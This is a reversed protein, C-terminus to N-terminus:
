LVYKWAKKLIIQSILVQSVGFRDALQQQKAEGTSYASRIYQIHHETLKARNTLVGRPQNGRGKREKDLLNDLNTGLWLHDPRVCSPLDCNHCVHLGDSIPGIFVEYSVRHAKRTAGKYQICGYGKSNDWGRMWIWCGSETVPESNEVIYQRIEEPTANKRPM